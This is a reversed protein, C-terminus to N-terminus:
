ETLLLSPNRCILSWWDYVEKEYGRKCIYPKQDKFTLIFTIIIENKITISKSKSISAIIINNKKLFLQNKYTTITYKDESM